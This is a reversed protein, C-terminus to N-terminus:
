KMLDLLKQIEIRLTANEYLIRYIAEIIPIHVKYKANLEHICRVAHFGEAVMKMELQATRVSYGKGIMLGFSRNRSYQSYATVLFDGLYPATFINREHNPYITEIFHVMENLCNTNFVALLNDGVDTGKLIGGALAYINKLIISFEIGQMDSSIHVRVYNTTFISAIHKAFEWNSSGSTLYTLKESAIEEAHSPGSIICFQENPINFYQEIYSSITEMREPVIGKIASVIYKNQMNKKAVMSLTSYVFASPTVLVLINAKSIIYKLDTSIRIQKNNLLVSSLYLPNRGKTKIGEEIETERVWWYVTSLNTTLIKVIATAWSGGGIVAVKHKLHNNM